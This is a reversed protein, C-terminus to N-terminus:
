KGPWKGWIIAVGPNSYNPDLPRSLEALCKIITTAEKL